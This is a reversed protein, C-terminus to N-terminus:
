PCQLTYNRRGAKLPQQHELGHHTDNSDTGEVFDHSQPIKTSPLPAPSDSGEQPNSYMHYLRRPECLYLFERWPTHWSVHGQACEPYQKQDARWVYLAITWALCPVPSTSWLCSWGCSPGRCFRTTQNNSQQLQRVDVLGQTPWTGRWWKGYPRHLDWTAERENKLLAEVRCCISLFREYHMYRPPRIQAM